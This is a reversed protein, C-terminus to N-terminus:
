TRFCVTLMTCILFTTSSRVRPKTKRTNRQHPTVCCTERYMWIKPTISNTKPLISRKKQWLDLAPIGDMRLGVDLSIIEAESSCHSVSTQKKCMWSKPVCTHSGFICSIGGSTSKSDEQDGAFDSDQFLGESSEQATGDARFHNCIYFFIFELVM